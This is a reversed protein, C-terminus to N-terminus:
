RGELKPRLRQDYMWRLADYLKKHIQGQFDKMVRVQAPYLTLEKLERTKEPHDLLYYVPHPLDRILDQYTEVHARTGQM